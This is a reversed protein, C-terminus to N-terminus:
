SRGGSILERLWGELRPKLTLPDGAIALTKTRDTAGAVIAIASKPLRWSKALLKIAAANAKGAEPAATVRAKLAPRGDALRVVGEVANRGGAPQLRLM